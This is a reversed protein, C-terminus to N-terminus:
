WINQKPYIKTTQGALSSKVSDMDGVCLNPKINTKILADFGSDACIIYSNKTIYKTLMSQTPINGGSIIVVRM